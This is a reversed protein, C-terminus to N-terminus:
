INRSVVFMFIYPQPSPIEVSKINRDFSPVYLTIANDTWRPDNVTKRVEKAM